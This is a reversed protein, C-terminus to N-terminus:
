IRLVKFDDNEKHKTCYDIIEETFDGFLSGGFFQLVNIDIGRTNIEIIKIKNDATITVDFALVRQSPIKLAIKSVLELVDSFLPVILGEFKVGSDPHHLYKDGYLSTGFSNLEGNPSVHCSIGGLTMNDVYMEKRGMRLFCRLPTIEENEVSRYTYIRLTNVSTKNFQSFFSHQKLLRQIVYNRKFQKEITGLDFEINNHYHRGESYIILKVNKGGGSEITPKVIVDEEIKNIRELFTTGPIINYNGDLFSGSNNRLIVSPFLEKNYLIEYSNKDAVFWSYNLDNLIPEICSYYIDEPVYRYDVIGSVNSFFRQWSVDINKNLSEWCGRHKEEIESSVPEFLAPNIKRFKKIKKRYRRISRYKVIKRLVINISDLTKM